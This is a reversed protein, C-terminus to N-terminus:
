PPGHAVIFRATVYDMSQLHRLFWDPVAHAAYELLTTSHGSQQYAAFQAAMEALVREHEAQHVAAPPFAAERMAAEERAFHARTHDVLAAWAAGIAVAGAGTRLADVAARLLRVEEAHDDNMFALATQPIATLDDIHV